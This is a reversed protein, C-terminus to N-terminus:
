SAAPAASQRSERGGVGVGAIGAEAWVTQQSPDILQGFDPADIQIYPCGMRALEQAEERMLTLGDAFLEFPDQYAERSRGPSWALFLM